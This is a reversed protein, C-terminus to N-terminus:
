SIPEIEGWLLFMNIKPVGKDIFDRRIVSNIFSFPSGTSCLVIVNLNEIQSRRNGGVITCNDGFCGKKNPEEPGAPIELEVATASAVPAAAEEQAKQEAYAAADAEMQAIEEATLEVETTVGTSCDVVLKTPM